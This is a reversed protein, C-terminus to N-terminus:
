ILILNEKTVYLKYDSKAMNKSYTKFIVIINTDIDIGTIRHSHFIKFNAFLYFM